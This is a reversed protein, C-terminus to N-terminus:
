TWLIPKYTALWVMLFIALMALTYAYAAQFSRQKSHMAYIGFGIYFLLLVLKVGLWQASVFPVFHMAVAMSVGTLLLVTDIAQQVINVAKRLPKTPAITRWFFRFNFLIVSICVLAIHSHKLAPYWVM